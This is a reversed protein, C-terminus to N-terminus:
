EDTKHFVSASYWGAIGVLPMWRAAFSVWDSLEPLMKSFMSIVDHGTAVDVGIRVFLYSLFVGAIAPNWSQRVFCIVGYLLGGVFPGLILILGIAWAIDDSDDEAYPAVGIVPMLICAAFSGVGLWLLYLNKAAAGLVAMIGIIVVLAGCWVALQRLTEARDNIAMDEVVTVDRELTEGTDADYHAGSVPDLVKDAYYKSKQAQFTGLRPVAPATVPPEATAVDARLTPKPAPAPPKSPVPSRVPGRRNNGPAHTITVQAARGQASPLNRLDRRCWSCTDATESEMGCWRCYWTRGGTRPVVPSPARPTPPAVPGTAAVPGVSIRQGFPAAISPAEEEEHTLPPLNLDEPASPREQVPVDGLPAPARQMLPPPPTTVNGQPAPEPKQALPQVPPPQRLPLPAPSPAATPPLTPPTSPPASPTDQRPQPPRALPIAGPQKIPIAELQRGDEPQRPQAPTYGPGGRGPSVPPPTYAPPIVPRAASPPTVPAPPVPPPVTRAAPPESVPPRIPGGFPVPSLDDDLDEDFTGGLMVPGGAQMAPPRPSAAGSPEEAPPTAVAPTEVAPAPESARQTAM